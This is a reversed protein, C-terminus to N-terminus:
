AVCVAPLLLLMSKWCVFVAEDDEWVCFVPLYAMFDSGVWAVSLPNPNGIFTLDLGPLRSHDYVAMDLLPPPQANGHFPFM